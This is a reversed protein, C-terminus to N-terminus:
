CLCWWVCPLAGRLCPPQAERLVSDGAMRAPVDGVKSVGRWWYATCIECLVESPYPVLDLRVENVALPAVVVARLSWVGRHRSDGRSLVRVSMCNSQARLSVLEVLVRLSEFFSFFSFNEVFIPIIYTNRRKIRIAELRLRLREECLTSFRTRCPKEPLFAIKTTTASCETSCIWGMRAARRTGQAAEESAVGRSRGTREWCRWCGPSWFLTQCRVALAASAFCRFSDTQQQPM